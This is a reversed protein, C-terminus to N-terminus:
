KGASAAPNKVVLAVQSAGSASISFLSTTVLPFLSTSPGFIEIENSIELADEIFSLCWGSYNPDGIKGLAWHIMNEVIQSHQM